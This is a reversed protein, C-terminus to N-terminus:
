LHGRVPARSSVRHIQYTIFAAKPHGRVPARSSVILISLFGPALNLSAGERPCSKFGAYRQGAAPGPGRHGRVPARSSVLFWAPSNRQAQHHGRVPARSSVHLIRIRTLSNRSAGERPCSKFSKIRENM